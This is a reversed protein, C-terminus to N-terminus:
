EARKLTNIWKSMDPEYNREWRVWDVSYKEQVPHYWTQTTVERTDPVGIMSTALAGKRQMALAGERSGMWDQFLRAANPHPAFKSISYWNNPFSPTPKPYVWRIPAGAARKLAAISDWGWFVFDIEGAVVRDIATLQDNFIMPRQAAIKEMFNPPYKKGLAPDQFLHIASYCLGCKLTYVAFRKKFRPDLVGDWGAELIKAEAPTVMNENYIIAAVTPTYAYAYDKLRYAEPFQDHTPLKWEQLYGEDFLSKMMPQDSINVIDSINKKAQSEEVFRQYQKVGILRIIEVKIEPYKKEFELGLMKSLELTSTTYWVVRGEGKAAQYLMAETPAGTTQAWASTACSSLLLYLGALVLKGESYGSGNMRKMEDGDM